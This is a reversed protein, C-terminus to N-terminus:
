RVTDDMEMGLDEYLKRRGKKDNDLERQAYKAVDLALRRPVVIVGDGDAVVMDGPNVQVGGVSVPVDMADFRLRGQVMKQSIFPSWFPVKQLILEDTDRVGGNTVYGRAGNRLGALTNNSGMLGADVGSQDIVAFDGPQLKSIWPYTCVNGYYWGSWRDYEQPTMAPIPGEFPLYRATRATGIARTRWLPRIDPSMSGFHHMMNWDMGDRVDAVRLAQYLELLAQREQSSEVM